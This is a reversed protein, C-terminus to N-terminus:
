SLLNEIQNVIREDADVISLAKINEILQAQLKPSTMLQSLVQMLNNVVDKDEIMLAAKREVLALANKKQHDESVNPSPILICAKEVVCLESISLAGARSIVVDAVAYAYNM